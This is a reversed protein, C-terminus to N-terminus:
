PKHMALGLELRILDRAKSPHDSTLFLGNDTLQFRNEHEPNGVTEYNTDNVNIARVINADAVARLLRYLFESNWDNGNLQSLETATLPMKHQAM